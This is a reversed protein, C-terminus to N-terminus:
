EEKVTLYVDEELKYGGPYTMVLFTLKYKSGDLGGSIKAIVKTGVVALDGEVEVTYVADAGSIDSVVVIADGIVEGEPLDRFRRAFDMISPVIEQPQKEQQCAM